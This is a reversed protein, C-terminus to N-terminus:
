IESSVAISLSASLLVCVMTVGLEKCRKKDFAVTVGLFLFVYTCVFDLILAIEPSLPHTTAGNGDITCGGLSHNQVTQRDMVNQHIFFGIVSGACQFLVYIAARALTILDRLAAIFRLIPSMHGGSLPVTMMLFLFLILFIALPVLLKPEVVNSDLISIITTTLSFVYVSLLCNSTVRHYSGEM